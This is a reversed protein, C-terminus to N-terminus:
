KGEPMSFFNAPLVLNLEIKGITLTQGMPSGKAHTEVKTAFVLGDTTTYGGINTESEIEQGQITRKAETRVELYSGADLYVIQEASDKTTLKLKYAPKGDVDTQGLLEIKNGKAAYDFFPGDFDAEERFMKLADGSAIEPTQNGMFPMLTWGTTGDYSQTGTMGQVTFDTRISAPRAKTLTFPAAMPGMMMTGTLRISKLARIKEAGGRAAINKAVLEDATQASSTTAVLSMLVLAVLFKKLM